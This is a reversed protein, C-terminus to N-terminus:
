SQGEPRDPPAQTLTLLDRDSLDQIFGRVDDRWTPPADRLERGLDDLLDQLTMPRELRDWVVTGFENVGHYAATDLHLLVGGEGAALRRYVARDGRSILTDGSLHQEGV